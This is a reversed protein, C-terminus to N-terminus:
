RRFYDVAWSLDQNDQELQHIVTSKHTVSSAIGLLWSVIAIALAMVIREKLSKFFSKLVSPKVKRTRRKMNTSVCVITSSDPIAGPFKDHM